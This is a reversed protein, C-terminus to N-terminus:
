FLSLVAQKRITRGSSLHGRRIHIQCNPNELYYKCVDKTNQVSCSLPFVTALFQGCLACQTAFLVPSAMRLQPSAAVVAALWPKPHYCIFHMGPEAHQQPTPQSGRHVPGGAPRQRRLCDNADTLHARGGVARASVFQIASVLLLPFPWRLGVVCVRPECVPYVASAPNPSPVCLPTLYSASYYRRQAPDPLAPDCSPQFPPLSTGGSGRQVAVIPRRKRDNGATPPHIWSFVKSM